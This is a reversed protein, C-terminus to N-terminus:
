QCFLLEVYYILPVNFDLPNLASSLKYKAMKLVKLGNTVTSSFHAAGTTKM